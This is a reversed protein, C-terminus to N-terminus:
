SKRSDISIIIAITLFINFVTNLMTLPNTFFSIVLIYFAMSYVSLNLLNPSTRLSYYAFGTAAGVLFPFMVVGLVGYDYYYPWFFSFTNYGCILFPREIINFTEALWHKVGILALIFDGTFYGYTFNELNSVGRAFNELNMVIYMYPETFISFTAPYKMKSIVYIYNQVYAVLRVKQILSIIIALLIGILLIHKLSVRKTTYYLLALLMLIWITLNFRQLTFFYSIIILLSLVMLLIKKKKNQKIFIFYISVLFLITPMSNVLLHIGFVGWEVRARDPISAWFPLYGELIVETIYSIFYIGILIVLSYFLRKGNIAYNFYYRRIEDVYLLREKSYVLYAGFIGTLLSFIGLLLTIWSYLDWKHQFYSLKLDALGIALAWVFAFVRSPSFLDVSKRRSDLLLFVCLLFCVISLYSM